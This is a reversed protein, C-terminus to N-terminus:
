KRAKMFEDLMAAIESAKTDLAFHGADLVHVGANEARIPHASFAWRKDGSVAPPVFRNQGM